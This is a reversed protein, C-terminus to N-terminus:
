INAYEIPDELKVKDNNGVIYLDIKNYPHCCFCFIAYSEYFFSINPNFLYECENKQILHM